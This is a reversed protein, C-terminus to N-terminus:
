PTATWTATGLVRVIKLVDRAQKWTWHQSLLETEDGDAGIPRRVLRYLLLHRRYAMCRCAPYPNRWFPPVIFYAHDHM